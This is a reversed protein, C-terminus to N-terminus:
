EKTIQPCKGDGITERCMNGYKACLMEQNYGKMALECVGWDHAKEIPIVGDPASSIAKKIKEKIENTMPTLDKNTAICYALECSMLMAEIDDILERDILVAKM